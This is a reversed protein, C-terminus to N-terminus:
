GAGRNVANRTVEAMGKTFLDVSCSNFQIVNDLREMVKKVAVANSEEPNSPDKSLSLM